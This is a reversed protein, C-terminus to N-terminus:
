STCMRRHLSGWTPQAPKLEHIHVSVLEGRIQFNLTSGVSRRPRSFQHHILLSFVAEDDEIRDLRLKATRDKVHFMLATGVTRTLRLAM